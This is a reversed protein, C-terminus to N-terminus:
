LVIVVTKDLAAFSFGKIKTAKETNKGVAPRLVGYNGRYYCMGRSFPLGKRHFIISLNIEFEM